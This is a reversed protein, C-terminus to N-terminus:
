VELRAFLGELSEVDDGPPLELADGRCALDILREFIRAARMIPEVEMWVPLVRIELTTKEPRGTLLNTLNFDCYKTLNLRALREKVQEWSLERFTPEKVVEILETPWKGLRRCKPNVGVRKKLAEGYRDLLLVLNALTPASQLESGDFHFHTAGEAPITFGLGKALGLFHGIRADHDSNLPATILECPREREGPLPAAIAVPTGQHDTVRHMGNPGPQPETGFLRGIPELVHELAESADAQLAVLNLLRPDDSLIRYWGPKPATSKNLDTQLTLDDVCTAVWCGQSDRVEFGLVLNQFVPQGPVKSVESQPYFIRRVSGNYQEAIAEALDRRSKGRPALLEIELGLRRKLDTSM